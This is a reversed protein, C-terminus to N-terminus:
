IHILSLIQSLALQLLLIIAVIAFTKVVLSSPKM